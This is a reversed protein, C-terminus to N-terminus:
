ELGWIFGFDIYEHKFQLLISYESGYNNFIRNASISLDNNFYLCHETIFDDELLAISPLNMKWLPINMEGTELYELYFNFYFGDLHICYIEIGGTSDFFASSPLSEMALNTNTRNNWVHNDFSRNMGSGFQWIGFYWDDHGQIGYGNYQVNNRILYNGDANDLVVGAKNNGLFQGAKNVGIHNSSVSNNKAGEFYIGWDNGVITNGQILNDHVDMTGLHIGTTQGGIAQTCDVNCGIFNGQIVNNSAHRFSGEGGLQVGAFHNGSFINPGDGGITNYRAGNSIIIGLEGNPLRHHGSSDVGCRNGYVRTGEVTEHLLEIGVSFNGSAVNNSIQTNKALASLYIGDSNNGFYKWLSPAGFPNQSLGTEDAQYSEAGAHNTLIWRGDPTTGIKNDNIVNNECPLGWRNREEETDFAYGISIGNHVGSIVNREIRNSSSQIGVGVAETYENYIPVSGNEITWSDLTAEFNRWWRARGFDWYFGIYNDHINVQDAGPQTAIANAKFNFIQLGALTSGGGGERGWHDPGLITFAGPLGNADIQILPTGDYGPQTRGDIHVTENIWLRDSLVIRHVAGAPTLNFTIWGPSSTRNAQEIAWPLTGVLRSDSSTSTVVYNIADVSLIDRKLSLNPASNKAELMVSWKELSDQVAVESTDKFHCDIRTEGIIRYAEDFVLSGNTPLDCLIKDNFQSEQVVVYDSSIIRVNQFVKSDHVAHAYGAMIFFCAFLAVHIMRTNM